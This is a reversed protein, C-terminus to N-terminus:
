PGGFKISNPMTVEKIKKLISNVGGLPCLLQSLRLKRWFLGGELHCLTFNLFVSLFYCRTKGLFGYFVNKSVGM